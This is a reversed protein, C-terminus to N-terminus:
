SLGEKVGEGRWRGRGSGCLREGEYQLGKINRSAGWGGVSM